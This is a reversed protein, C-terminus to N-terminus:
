KALSAKLERVWANRANTREVEKANEEDMRVIDREAEAVAHEFYLSPSIRKADRLADAYYTTEDYSTAIQDLMFKKLGDHDGTPPAWSEVAIKMEALRRNQEESRAIMDEYLKIKENRLKAGHATAATEDMSRLKRLRAKAEKLEKAYCDTPKFEPIDPGLPDDRMMVCAGMARACTLVFDNFSQGKECLTATYGTPM